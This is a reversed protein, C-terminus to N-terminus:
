SAPANLGRGVRVRFQIEANPHYRRVYGTHFTGLAPSQIRHSVAFITSVM